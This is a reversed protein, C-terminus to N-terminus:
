SRDTADTVVEKRLENGTKLMVSIGVGNVEEDWMIVAILGEAESWVTVEREHDVAVQSYGVAIDHWFRTDHQTNNM